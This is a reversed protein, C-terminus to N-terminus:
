DSESLDLNDDGAKWKGALWRHVKWVRWGVRREGLQESRPFTKEGMGRRITSESLTTLAIVEDLRYFSTPHRLAPKTSACM